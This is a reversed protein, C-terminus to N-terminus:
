ADDDREWRDRAAYAETASPWLYPRSLVVLRTPGTPDPALWHGGQHGDFDCAVWMWFGGQQTKLEFSVMEFHGDRSRLQLGRNQQQM